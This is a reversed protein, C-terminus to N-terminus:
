QIILKETMKESGSFINLIYVGKAMDRSLLQFNSVLFDDRKFVIKGNLDTLVLSAKKNGMGSLFDITIYDTSPNPYVSLKTVEKRKEIATAFSGKLIVATVSLPLLNITFSNNSVSVSSNQLANNTHSIFTETPPLNNLTLKTYAGNVLNFNSLNVTTSLTNATNRNVLIVTVSDSANNISSYASIYNNPSVFSAIRTNKAYRSYLHLTEWMGAYWYWPTFLEVGNDSLCGLMNAYLCMSINHNSDDGMEGESIGLGVEHSAGLYRALWDNVRGFIYEKNISVDWGTTGLLHVGNAQPYIYDKDFLVKYLDLMDATNKATLYFHIDLVDLLRIGSAVQEESIRKIFYELNSYSIGNYQITKNNWAYWQWESASGPGVLKIAPYKARAAKAVAFYKQMYNEATLSSSIVDDHTSSWIEPENDMNWYMFNAKNLGLGNNGFWHDLIGTTSDAPWDKLYLAPNGNVLANAGGAPNVTGGGALNQGTGSWWASQNFAWDNFNYATSSAAKGILQFSYFGQVGPLNQQLSQAAFNWDHSYVNNYWDPHSTLKQRWNYKTSNNGGGERTFRLGAERFLQWQAQTVPKGPNDSLSNNRGYIFPSIPKRGTNADVSVTVPQATCFVTSLLLGLCMLFPYFEAM